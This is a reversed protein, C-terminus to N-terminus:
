SGQRMERLSARMISLVESDGLTEAAAVTRWGRFILFDGVCDSCYTLHHTVATYENFTLDRPAWEVDLFGDMMYEAPCQKGISQLVKRSVMFNTDNEPVWEPEVGLLREIRSVLLMRDALDASGKGLKEELRNLFLDVRQENALRHRTDAAYMTLRYVNHRWRHAETEDQSLDALEAELASCAVAYDRGTRMGWQYVRTLDGLEKQLSQENRFSRDPIM